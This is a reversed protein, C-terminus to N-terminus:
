ETPVGPEVGGESVGEDPGEIPGEPTREPTEEELACMEVSEDGDGYKWRAWIALFSPLVFVSALFSYFISLATVIGFQAMPPLLSFTLMGFGGITTAAAGFLAAGTHGVTNCLADKWPRTELDELFRHSIHIAYTIGLGITLAAIMITVVNLPINLLFMSGFVWGIVMVIPITSLLGVMVTRYFVGYVIMLLIMAMIVTAVVSRLGASNMATVTLYTLVPGDTVIAEDLEGDDNLDKLPDIASNLEETLLKSGDSADHVSVRIVAADFEGGDNLHIVGLVDQSTMPHAVLANMLELVNTTPVGNADPATTDYIAGIEPIYSPSVPLSYRHIVTLPSRTDARDGVKVVDRTAAMNDESRYIANLVSATAVEGEMLVNSSSSSFNFNDLLYKITQSEELEDPLFDMFDFETDIESVSYFSLGSLLLAVVAIIPGHKAGSTAGIQVFRVLATQKRPGNGGGSASGKRKGQRERRQDILLRASPVFLVMVFFASIIGMAALMGFERMMSLDSLINSMFSFVTTVTALLLAMGVSAITLIISRDLSHERKELRYRMTLHIGYDVALGVLLVPVAITMPNFTFGLIVGLGFTWVIVMLLAGLTLGTDTLSQFVLALIVVIFLIALGLLMSLSDMSSTNIKDFLIEGAMVGFEVSGDGQKEVHEAMDELDYQAELIRDSDMSGNQQVIMLSAKASPAAETPDYDTSLVFKLGTALGFLISTMVEPQTEFGTIMSVAIQITLLHTLSDTMLMGHDVPMGMSTYNGSMFVEDMMLASIPAGVAGTTPDSTAETAERAAVTDGVAMAMPTPDFTNMGTITGKVATDDMGEIIMRITTLNPFGLGGNGNGNGSAGSNGGMEEIQRVIEALAVETITLNSGVSEPDSRDMFLIAYSLMTISENMLDLMATTNVMEVTFMVSGQLTMAGMATLDAISQVGTPVQETPGLTDTIDPDGPEPELIMGELDLIGLLAKQNLVDGGKGAPDRIIVQATRVDAGFYENIHQSANAADSDPNFDEETSDMNTQSAFFGLVGTIVLIAVVVVAPAKAVAGGIKELIM